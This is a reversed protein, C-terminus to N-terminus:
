YAHFNDGSVEFFKRLKKSDELKIAKFIVSFKVCLTNVHM